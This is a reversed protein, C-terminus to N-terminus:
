GAPSAPIIGRRKHRDGGMIPHGVKITKSAFLRKMTAELERRTLGKAQLMDEMM